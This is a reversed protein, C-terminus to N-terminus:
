GGKIKQSEGQVVRLSLALYVIKGQNEQVQSCLLTIVICTCEIYCNWVLVSHSYQPWTQFKYLFSSLKRSRRLFIKRM